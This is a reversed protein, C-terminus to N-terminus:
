VVTVSIFSNQHGFYYISHIRARTCIELYIHVHTHTQTYTLQIRCKQQRMCSLRGSRTLTMNVHVHWRLLCCLYHQQQQLLLLLLVNGRAVDCSQRKVRRRATSNMVVGSTEPIKVRESVKAIQFSDLYRVRHSFRCLYTRTRIVYM